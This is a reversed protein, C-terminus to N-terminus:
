IDFSESSRRGFVFGEQGNYIVRDFLRYGFMCKPTQNSKRYGGKYTKDEHWYLGFDGIIIIYDNRTLNKQEPFNKTNLKSIDIPIHTDGTLYIM